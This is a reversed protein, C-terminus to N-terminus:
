AAKQQARRERQPIKPLNAVVVRRQRAELSGLYLALWLVGPPIEYQLDGARGLAKFKKEELDVLAFQVPHTVAIHLGHAFFVWIGCGCSLAVEEVLHVTSAGDLKKKSPM